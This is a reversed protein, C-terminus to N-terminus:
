LLDRRQILLVREYLFYNNTGHRLKRSLKLMEL